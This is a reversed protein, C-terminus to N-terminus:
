REAAPLTQEVERALDRLHGLRPEPLGKEAAPMAERLRRRADEARSEPTGHRGPLVDRRGGLGDPLTVVAQGSQRHLRYSPVSPRRSM